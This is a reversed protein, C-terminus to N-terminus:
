GANNMFSSQFPAAELRAATARRFIPAKAGPFLRTAMMRELGVPHQWVAWGLPWVRKQGQRRPQFGRGKLVTGIRM